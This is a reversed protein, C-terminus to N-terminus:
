DRLQGAPGLRLDPSDHWDSRDRTPKGRGWLVSLLQNVDLDFSGGGDPNAQGTMQDPDRLWDAIRGGQEPSIPLLQVRARLRYTAGKDLAAVAALEHPPFVAVAAQAAAVDTFAQQEGPGRVTYREDWVDYSISRAARVTRVTEYEGQGLGLLTQARTHRQLRVELQLVAPLGSQLTSLSRPSFLDACRAGARLVGDVVAPTVEVVRIPEGDPAAAAPGLCVAVLAAALRWQRRESRM